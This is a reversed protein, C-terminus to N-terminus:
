STLAVGSFSGKANSRGAWSNGWWQKFAQKLYKLLNGSRLQKTAGMLLLGTMEIM